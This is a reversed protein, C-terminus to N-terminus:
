RTPLWAMNPPLAQLATSVEESMAEALPVFLVIGFGDDSVIFLVELWDGHRDLSEPLIAFAGDLLLPVPSATQVDALTDQPEGILILCLDEFAFDPYTLLNDRHFALREGLTRDPPDHLARALDEATRIILM